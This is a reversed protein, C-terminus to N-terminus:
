PSWRSRPTFFWQDNWATVNANIVTALDGKLQSEITQRVRSNCCFGFAAILAAILLPALWTRNGPPNTM